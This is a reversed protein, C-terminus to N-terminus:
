QFGGMSKSKNYILQELRTRGSLGRDASRIHHSTAAISRTALDTLADFLGRTDRIEQRSRRVATQYGLDPYYRMAVRGLIMGRKRINHEM